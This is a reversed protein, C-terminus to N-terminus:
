TGGVVWPPLLAWTGPVHEFLASEYTQSPLSPLGFVGLLRARRRVHCRPSRGQRSAQRPWSVELPQGGTRGTVLAFGLLCKSVIQLRLVLCVCFFLCVVDVPSIVPCSYATAIHYIHTCRWLVSFAPLCLWRAGMSSLALGM